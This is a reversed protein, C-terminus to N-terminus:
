LSAAFSPAKHNVGLQKCHAIADQQRKGKAQKATYYAIKRIALQTNTM